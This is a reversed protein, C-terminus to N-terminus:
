YQMIRDLFDLAKKYQRQRKYAEILMDKYFFIHGFHKEQELKSVLEELLLLYENKEIFGPVCEMRAEKFKLLDSEMCGNKTIVEEAKAICKKGQEVSGMRILVIAKKHLVDLREDDCRNLYDLAEDYKEEAILSAGINYYIDKLAEQWNTNRLINMACKYCKMMMENMNICGYATGNLMYYNALQYVNGESVAMNVAKSEMQHIRLYDNAWYYAALLENLAFSNNLYRYAKEGFEVIRERKKLSEKKSNSPISMFYRSALIFYYGKQRDSMYDEYECLQEYTNHMEFGQIIIWDIAFESYELMSSNELLENYLNNMYNYEIMNYCEDIIKSWYQMTKDSCKMEIGLREFLKNIIEPEPNVVGNEIKSLYSTVCIGYCVEKQGKDQRLRERKLLYGIVTKRM